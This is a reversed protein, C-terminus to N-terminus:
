TCQSTENYQEDNEKKDSSLKRTTISPFREVLAGPVFTIDHQDLFKCINPFHPAFLKKSVLSTLSATNFTSCFREHDEIKYSVEYKIQYSCDKGAYKEPVSEGQMLLNDQEESLAKAAKVASKLRLKNLETVLKGLDESAKRTHYAVDALSAHDELQNITDGLLGIIQTIESYQFEISFPNSV